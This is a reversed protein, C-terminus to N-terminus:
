QFDLIGPHAQLDFRSACRKSPYIGFPYRLKLRVKPVQPPHGGLRVAAVGPSYQLRSSPPIHRQQQQQQWQQQQWQQQQWQQQQWHQPSRSHQRHAPQQYHQHPPPRQQQRPPASGLRAQQELAKMRQAEQREHVARQKQLLMQRQREEREALKAQAKEHREADREVAKLLRGVVAGVEAQVRREEAARQRQEAALQRQELERRRLEVQYAKAAQRQREHELREHERRRQEQERKMEQLRMAEVLRRQTEDHELSRVLREVCTRVELSRQAEESLPPPPPAVPVQVLVEISMGPWTNPPVIVEYRRRPGDAAGPVSIAIRQGAVVGQPIVVAMRKTMTRPPAPASPPDAGPIRRILAQLVDRVVRETRKECKDLRTRLPGRHTPPRSGSAAALAAAAAAVKADVLPEAVGLQQLAADLAIPAAHQADGSSVAGSPAEGAPGLGETLAVACRKCLAQGDATSTLTARRFTRDMDFPLAEGCWCCCDEAKRRSGGRRLPAPSSASAVAADVAAMESAAAASAAAGGRRSSSSGASSAAAGTRSSSAGLERQRARWPLDLAGRASSGGSGSTTAGNSTSTASAAASSAALLAATDAASGAYDHAARQRKAAPEDSGGDSILDVDESDSDALARASTEDACRSRNPNFKPCIDLPNVAQKCPRKKGGDHLPCPRGSM